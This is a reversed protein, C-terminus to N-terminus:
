DESFVVSKQSGWWHKRLLEARKVSEMKQNEKVSCLGREEAGSDAGNPIIDRGKSHTGARHPSGM